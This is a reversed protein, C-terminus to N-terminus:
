GMFIYIHLNDSRQYQELKDIEYKMVMAQWQMPFEDAQKSKVTEIMQKVAANVAATVAVTIVKTLEPVVTEIM